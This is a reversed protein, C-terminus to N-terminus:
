PNLTLPKPPPSPPNSWRLWRPIHPLDSVDIFLLLFGIKNLVELVAYLDERVDADVTRFGDSIVWIFPFFTWSLVVFRVLLQVHPQAFDFDRLVSRLRTSPDIHGTELGRRHILILLFSLVLCSLVQILINALTQRVQYEALKKNQTAIRVLVSDAGYLQRLLMWYILMGFVWYTWKGVQVVPVLTGICGCAHICSNLGILYFKLTFPVRKTPMERAKIIKTTKPFAEDAVHM